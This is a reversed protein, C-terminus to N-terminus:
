LDSLLCVPSTQWASLGGIGEASRSSGGDGAAASTGLGPRDDPDANDILLGTRIAVDVAGGADGAGSLCNLFEGGATEVHLNQGGIV